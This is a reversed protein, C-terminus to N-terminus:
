EGQKESGTTQKLSLQAGMDKRIANRMQLLETTAGSIDIAKDLHALSVDLQNAQFYLSGLAIHAEALDPLLTQSMKFDALAKEELGKHNYIVGRNFHAIARIHEPVFRNDILSTCSKTTAVGQTNGHELLRTQEYCDQINFNIKELNLSAGYANFTLSLTLCTFVNTVAKTFSIKM